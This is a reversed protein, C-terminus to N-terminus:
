GSLAVHTLVHFYHGIGTKYSPLCYTLDTQAADLAIYLM